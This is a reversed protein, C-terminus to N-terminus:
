DVRGSRGVVEADVAVGVVQGFRGGLEEQANPEFTGLAMMVGELFVALAVVVSEGGEELSHAGLSALLKSEETTLRDHDDLGSGGALRRRQTAFRDLVGQIETDWEGLPEGSFLVLEKGPVNDIAVDTVQQATAQDLRDVVQTGGIGGGVDCQHVGQGLVKDLAVVIELCQQPGDDGAPEVLQTGLWGPGIDGVGTEIAIVPDLSQRGFRQKIGDVLGGTHLCLELAQRQSCPCNFQGIGAIEIGVVEELGEGLGLSGTDALAFSRGVLVEGLGQM